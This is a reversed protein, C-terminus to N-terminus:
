GGTENESTESDGGGTEEPTKDEAQAETEPAEKQLIDSKKEKIILVYTLHEFDVVPTLVAYRVSGQQEPIETIYGIRIGPLFADSVYSTVIEDGIAINTKETLMEVMVTGDARKELSGNVFCLDRSNTSMASVSSMDDIIARVKSHNYYAESVIGCLGNDAIVNMGVKIGDKTGKDIIFVDYWNGADKGIITAGVTDYDRFNEKMDLLERMSEIESMNMENENVLAKLSEVESELRENESELAEKDRDPSFADSVTRGISNLGKQVPTLISGITNNIFKIRDGAFVSLLILSASVCMLVIFIFKASVRKKKHEGMEDEISNM